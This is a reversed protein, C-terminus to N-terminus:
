WAVALSPQSSKIHAKNVTIKPTRLETLSEYNNTNLFTPTWYIWNGIRVQDRMVSVVHCYKIGKFHLTYCRSLSATIEEVAQMGSSRLWNSRFM